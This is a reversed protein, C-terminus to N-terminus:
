TSQAGPVFSAWFPGSDSPEGRRGGVLMSAAGGATTEAHAQQLPEPMLIDDLYCAATDNGPVEPWVADQWSSGTFTLLRTENEGEPVILLSWSEAAGDSNVGSGLVTYLSYGSFSFLSDAIGADLAAIADSLLFSGTGEVPMGEIGTDPTGAVSELCGCTCCFCLSGIIVASLYQQM